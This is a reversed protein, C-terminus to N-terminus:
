FACLHLNNRYIKGKFVAQIIGLDISNLLFLYAVYGKFTHTQLAKPIYPKNFIHKPTDGEDIIRIKTRSPAATMPCSLQLSKAM